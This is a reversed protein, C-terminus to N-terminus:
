NPDLESFDIKFNDNLFEYWLASALSDKAIKAAFGYQNMELTGLIVNKETEKGEEGIKNAASTLLEKWSPFVKNGNKDKIAMSVGAGILPIVNGKGINNKLSQPIFCDSM